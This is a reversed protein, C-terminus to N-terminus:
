QKGMVVTIFLISGNIGMTFLLSNHIKGSSLHGPKKIRLFNSSYRIIDEWVIDVFSRYMAVRKVGFFRAHLCFIDGVKGINCGPMVDNELGVCWVTDHFSCFYYIPTNGCIALLQVHWM